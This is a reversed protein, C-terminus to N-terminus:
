PVFKCKEACIEISEGCKEAGLEATQSCKEASRVRNTCNCSCLIAYIDGFLARSGIGDRETM